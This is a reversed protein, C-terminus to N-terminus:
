APVLLVEDGVRVTGPTHVAARVGLANTHADHLHRLVDLQRSLGGPQPRTTMVCRSCPGTVQLVVEGVRLHSGIWALEPQGISVPGGAPLESGGTVPDEGFVPDEGIVLNPRFRRQTWALEPREAAMTRLSATTLLHVASEDVFVGGPSEWRDLEGNENEADSPSEFTAVGHEAASVLRCPRELWASLAADLAPGPEHEEGSPLTIVPGVGVAGAAGAACEADLRASALLLRGDRKASVVTGSTLDLVGFARDGLVGNAGFSAEDLPTGQMSKVPYRWLELVQM